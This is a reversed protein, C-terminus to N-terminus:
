AVRSVAPTMPPDISVRLAEGLPTWIVNVDYKGRSVRV